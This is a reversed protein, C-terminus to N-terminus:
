WISYLYYEYSNKLTQHQLNTNGINVSYITLAEAFKRFVAILTTVDTGGYTRGDTRRNIQRGM